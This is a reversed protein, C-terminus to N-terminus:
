KSAADDCQSRDLSANSREAFKPTTMLRQEAGGRGDVRAVPADRWFGKCQRGGRTSDLAPYKERDGLQKMRRALGTQTM